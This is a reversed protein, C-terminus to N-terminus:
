PKGEERSILPLWVKFREKDLIEIADKTLYKYRKKINELGIKFSNKHDVEGSKSNAILLRGDATNEIVIQLPNDRSISNHKVANEVLM